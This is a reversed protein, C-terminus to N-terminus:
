FRKNKKFLCTLLVFFLFHENQRHLFSGIIQYLQVYNFNNSHRSTVFITPITITSNINLLNKNKSSSLFVLLNNKIQINKQNTSNIQYIHKTKKLIHKFQNHIQFYSNLFLIKKNSVSFKSMIKFSKVLRYLISEIKFNQLRNFKKYSKTQILKLKILSNKHKIRVNIKM